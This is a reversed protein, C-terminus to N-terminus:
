KNETLIKADKPIETLMEVQEIDEDVIDEILVGDRMAIKRKYWLKAEKIEEKLKDTIEM